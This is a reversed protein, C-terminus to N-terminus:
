KSPSEAKPQPSAAAAEGARAGASKLEQALIELNHKLQRITQRQVIVEYIGYLASTFVGLFFCFLVLVWLPVAPTEMKVLHLDLNLTVTQRLIELNEVIFVIGLLVIITTFIMKLFRM